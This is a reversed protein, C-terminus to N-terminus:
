RRGPRALRIQVKRQLTEVAAVISAGHRATVALSILAAPIAVIIAGFLDSPYHVGVYVRSWGVLAGIVIALCAMGYQRVLALVAAGVAFALAHNSPLSANPRHDVLSHGLSVMFPRPRFAIFGIAFSIVMAIALALALAFALLRRRRTGRIWLVVIYCPVLFIVFRTVAIAFLAVYSNPSAGANLALFLETDLALM